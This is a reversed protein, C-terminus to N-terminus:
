GAGDVPRAGFRAAEGGAPVAVGTGIWGGGLAGAGTWGGGFAVSGIEAGLGAASGDERRESEVGVSREATAADVVGARGSTRDVTAGGGAEGGTAFILGCGGPASDAGGLDPRCGAFFAAVRGAFAAAGACVGPGSAPDEVVPFDAAVVVGGASAAVGSVLAAPLGGVLAAPLGGELAAPLGREL